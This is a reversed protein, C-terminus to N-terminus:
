RRFILSMRRMLEDRVKRFENVRVVPDTWKAPDDLGWHIRIAKGLFIPCVEEKCLTIVTDVGTTDIDMVSKSCLGDTNIGIEKLVTIADSRVVKPDSGASLIEVDQSALHRAIAEAMISRASNNVCMFLIKKPHLGRLLAAEIMYEPPFPRNNEYIRTKGDDRLKIETDIDVGDVLITPCGSFNTIKNKNVDIYLTDEKIGFSNKIKELMKITEDFGSCNEYYFVEIKM